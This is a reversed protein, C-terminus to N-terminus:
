SWVIEIRNIDGSWSSDAEIKIVVFDGPSVYKTGFSVNNTTGTGANSITSTFTGQYCGDNDSTQGTNFPLALDMFGTSQNNTTNPIKAFVHINSANLLSTNDVISSSNGKIKLEFGFQSNQTNNEFKRYFTRTGTATSYDPNNVPGVMSSTNNFNISPALLKGDYFQLGTNFDVNAGVLSQTSDWSGSNIDTQNLYSGEKLRYSEASFNEVLGLETDVVTYILPSPSSIANSESDGNVPHNIECTLSATQLNGPISKSIDFNFNSEIEIDADAASAFSTDLNPLARQHSTTTGNIVGQGNVTISTVTSNTTTPFKIAGSLASYVYKYVNSATLSFNAIASTFYSIGSLYNPQTSGQSISGSDISLSSFSIPSSSSNIWEVYNTEFVNAGGDIDHIVRAYNWGSRQDAQNIQFEGTRYFYRYDPLSNSSNDLGVTASSINVFGTNNSNLVNGSAFTTLDITCAQIITGNVELRLEGVNAKGSGWADNPYNNGSATVDDNIKGALQTNGNFIGRRLSNSFTSVNYEGNANVVTSNGIGTVNTYGTKTLTSGFSLKASSGLSTIDIYDTDPSPSVSGVAGFNVTIDEVSGQWTKNTEIKLVVKENNQVESTGFTLYNSSSSSINNNFPGIKGGDGDSSITNYTFDTSADLWASSGPLKFFLKLNNTDSGLSYSNPRLTGSGNIQYSLDRVINGTTNTFSRIYRKVGASINGNSYDPNPQPSNTLLSFNGSEVLDSKKTSQLMGNHILLGDSYGVNASTILQTSDWANSSNIDSQLNYNSSTILRYSESNFDEFTESSNTSSNDILIGNSSALTNSSAITKYPHTISAEVSFGTSNDTILRQSSGLTIGSNVSLNLVKTYDETATNIQPIQTSTFSLSSSQPNSTVSYTVPTDGYVFKYFNSIDASYDCTGGTFYEVGSIHKSGTLSLSLSKSLVTLPDSNDDNVWQAYGTVTEQSGIVHKVQVYNFGNHQDASSVNWKGTRHKFNLFEQDSSFRGNGPLSLNYFGSGNSNSSGGAGNGPEGSGVEPGTLDLSHIVVGNLELNLSGETAKSFSNDPYNVIGNTYVDGTVDDNLDGSIDTNKRKVGKKYNGNLSNEQEFVENIDVASFGGISQDVSNYGLSSQDSSSGFSLIASISAGPDINFNDLSPAEKPALGKLVENFRDIATGLLTNSNFDTFLGDTYTGDEADGINIGNSHVISGSVELSGTQVADVEIIQKEAYLTGSVVVDGGFLTVSNQTNNERGDITGSIFLFVDNGVNTLLSSNIGGVSDLAADDSYIMLKPSTSDSDGIIKKSRIQDSLFDRPM